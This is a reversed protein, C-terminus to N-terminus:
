RPTIVGGACRYLEDDPLTIGDTADNLTRGQYVGDGNPCATCSPEVGAVSCQIRGGTPHADARRAPSLGALLLLVVLALGAASGLLAAAMTTPFSREGDISLFATPEAAVGPLKQGPALVGWRCLVSSLETALDAGARGMMHLDVELAARMEDAKRFRGERTPDTARLITGALPGEVRVREGRAAQDFAEQDDPRRARRGMYAEFLVLGLSYLDTRPDLVDRRAQEPALYAANWGQAREALKIEGGTSLVLTGPTVDGHVLGRRHLRALGRCAEIGLHAVVEPALTEGREQAARLLAQIDWGSFSGV